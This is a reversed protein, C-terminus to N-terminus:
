LLEDLVFVELEHELEGFGILSVLIQVGYINQDAASWDQSLVFDSKWNVLSAPKVVFM